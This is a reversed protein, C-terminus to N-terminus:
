ASFTRVVHDGIRNEAHYAMRAEIHVSCPPGPRVGHTLDQALLAPTSIPFVMIASPEPSERCLRIAGGGHHLHQLVNAWCSLSSLKIEMSGSAPKHRSKATGHLDADPPRPHFLRLSFRNTAPPIYSRRSENGCRAPLSHRKYLIKRAIRLLVPPDAYDGYETLANQFGNTYLYKDSCNTLFGPVHGPNQQNVSTFSSLAKKTTKTGTM